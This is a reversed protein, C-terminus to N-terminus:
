ARLFGHITAQAARRWALRIKQQAAKEKLMARVDPLCLRQAAEGIARADTADYYIAAEGGVEPLSGRDSLGLPAHEWLAEAASLGFGEMLSPCMVFAAHQYLARMKADDLFTLVRVRAPDFQAPGDSYRGAQSLGAVAITLDNPGHALLSEVAFPLNKHKARSGVLFAFAGPQLGNEQLVAPDAPTRQLHDGGNHVVTVLAPDAGYHVLRAKSYESVTAIRIRRAFYTKFLTQNAIRFGTSYSDPVDFLQADHLWVVAKGALVPSINCFSVVQDAGYRGPLLGQEGLATGPGSTITLWDEHGTPDFGTADRVAAEAPVALVLRPRESAPMGAIEPLLARLLERGVLTVGTRPKALFRLNIVSRMISESKALQPQV